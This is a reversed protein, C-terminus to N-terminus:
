WTWWRAAGNWVRILSKKGHYSTKKCQYLMFKRERETEGPPRKGKNQLKVLLLDDHQGVQSRGYCYNNSRQYVSFLTQTFSCTIRGSFTGFTVQPNVQAPLSQHLGRRHRATENWNNDPRPNGPRGKERTKKRLKCQVSFSSVVIRVKKGVDEIANPAPVPGNNTYYYPNPPLKIVFMHSDDPRGHHRSEVALRKKQHSSSVHLKGLGLKSHFNFFFM